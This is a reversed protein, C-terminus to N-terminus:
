TYDVRVGSRGTWRGLTTTHLLFALNRVNQLSFNGAKVGPELDFKVGQMMGGGPIDM